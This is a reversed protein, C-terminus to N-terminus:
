RARASDKRGIVAYDQFGFLLSNLREIGANFRDFDAGPGQLLPIRLFPDVPASFRLEVEHFGTAEFLFQMTDPHAPQVHSPDKYFTDAFIMLCKPNPTELILIGGPVLKRYCLKVLEIVRRPHLHEIVQAAFVGDISEDPRALLHAFADDMVVDLGKEHCLLVMDRDLDVGGAKIGSERLLELFEGRGCGIDLINEKGQFYQLYIRQREKIEHEDGRFREAFWAYDFDPELEPLPLAAKAIKTDPQGDEARRTELAHLIRRLKREASYVRERAAASSQKVMQLAQSQAALDEALRSQIALLEQRLQSQIAFVESLRSETVLMEQRLRSALALTEGRLKDHGDLVEDRLQARSQELTALAERQLRTQGDLMEDRLQTQTRELTEIQANVMRTAQAQERNLTGVWEKLHTTVRTSAANYTVQRDLIPTLLRRLAKTVAVIVSGVVRRNSVISVNQIDYGSHLHAFDAAAHGDDFPSSRSEPVPNEGATRRRRINERIQAMIQEVDIEQGEGM